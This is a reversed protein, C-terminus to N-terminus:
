NRIQESFLTAHADRGHTAPGDRGQGVPPVGTPRVPLIGTGRMGASNEDETPSGFTWSPSDGIEGIKGIESQGIPSGFTRSWQGM